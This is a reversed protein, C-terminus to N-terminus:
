RILETNILNEIKQKLTPSNDKVKEIYKATIKFIKNNSEYYITGDEARKFKSFDPLSAEGRNDCFIRAIFREWYIRLLMRWDIMKTERRSIKVGVEAVTGSRKGQKVCVDNKCRKTREYRPSVEGFIYGKRYPYESTFDYKRVKKGRKFTKRSM